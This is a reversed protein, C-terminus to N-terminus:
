NVYIENESDLCILFDPNSDKVVAVWSAFLSDSGGSHILHVKQGKLYPLTDFLPRRKGTVITASGVFKTNYVEGPFLYEDHHVFPQEDPNFGNNKGVLIFIGEVKQGLGLHKIVHSEGIM